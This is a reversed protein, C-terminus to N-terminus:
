FLTESAHVFHPSPWCAGPDAHPGAVLPREKEWLLSLDPESRIARLFIRLAASVFAPALICTASRLRVPGDSSISRSVEPAAFDATRLLSAATSRWLTALGFDALKVTNGCLLMNSPWTAM